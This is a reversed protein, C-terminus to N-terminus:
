QELKILSGSINQKALLKQQNSAQQESNFPGIVIRYWTTNNKQIPEIRADFGELTLAAKLEDADNMKNVASVQVIYRTPIKVAEVPRTAIPTETIKQTHQEIQPSTSSSADMKSLVTYFEFTPAKNKANTSKQDLHDEKNNSSSVNNVQQQKSKFKQNIFSFNMFISSSILVGALAGSLIWLWPNRKAGPSQRIKARPRKTTRKESMVLKFCDKHQKVLIM